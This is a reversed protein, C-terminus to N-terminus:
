YFNHISSSAFKGNVTLRYSGILSSGSVSNRVACQFCGTHSTTLSRVYLNEPEVSIVINEGLGSSLQKNTDCNIKSWTVSSSPLSSYEGCDLKLSEGVSGTIM